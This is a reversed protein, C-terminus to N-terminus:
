MIFSGYGTWHYFCFRTFLFYRYYCYWKMRGYFHSIFVYLFENDGLIRWRRCVIYNRLKVPWVYLCYCTPELTNAIFIHFLNGNTLDLVPPILHMFLAQLVICTAYATWLHCGLPFEYVYSRADIESYSKTHLIGNLEQTWCM